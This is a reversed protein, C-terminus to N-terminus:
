AQTAAAFAPPGRPSGAFARRSIPRRVPDSPVRDGRGCGPFRLRPGVFVEFVVVLELFSRALRVGGVAVAVQVVLVLTAVPLLGALNAQLSPLSAGSDVVAGAVFGLVPALGFLWLSRGSARRWRPYVSTMAALALALSLCLSLSTPLYSMESTGHAHASPAPGATARHALLHVGAWGVGGVLLLLPVGFRRTM